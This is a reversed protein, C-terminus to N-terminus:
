SIHNIIDTLFSALSIPFSLPIVDHSGALDVVLMFLNYEM